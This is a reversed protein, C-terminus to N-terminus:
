YDRAINRVINLKVEDSLNSKIVAKIDSLDNLAISYAKMTNNFKTNEEIEDKPNM